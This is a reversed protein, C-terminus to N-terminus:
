RSPTGHVMTTGSPLLRLLVRRHPREAGLQDLEAAIEVLRAFPHLLELVFPLQSVDM